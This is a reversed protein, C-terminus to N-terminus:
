YQLIIWENRKNSENCGLLIRRQFGAYKKHFILARPRATESSNGNLAFQQHCVVSSAHCVSALLLLEGQALPEPLSFICYNEIIM